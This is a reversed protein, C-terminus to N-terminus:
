KIAKFTMISSIVFEGSATEPSYMIFGSAASHVLIHDPLKISRMFLRFSIINKSQIRAPIIAQKGNKEDMSIM